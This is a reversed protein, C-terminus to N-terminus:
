GLQSINKLPTSVVLWCYNSPKYGEADRSVPLSRSKGKTSQLHNYYEGKEQNKNKIGSRIM